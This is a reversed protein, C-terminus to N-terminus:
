ATPWFSSTISAGLPLQTNIRYGERSGLGSGPPVDTHLFLDFGTGNRDVIRNIAAKVLDLKGDYAMKDDLAFSATMGYDLSEISIHRDMRERLTGYAYLNITTSLVCGGMQQPFPPVDTGGGAFSIRLPAKTRILM